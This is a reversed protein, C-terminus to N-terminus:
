TREKNLMSKKKAVGGPASYGGMGGDSRIVRHCPVVPAFPNKALAQGVARAAGPHGIERAIEGYTKTQGKPIRSCALWVKRYFPPYDKFKRLISSPLRPKASM